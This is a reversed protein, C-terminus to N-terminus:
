CPFNHSSLIRALETVLNSLQQTIADRETNGSQVHSACLQTELGHKKNLKFISVQRYYCVWFHHVFAPNNKNASPFFSLFFFSNPVKAIQIKLAIHSSRRSLSPQIVVDGPTMHYPHLYLRSRYNYKVFIVSFSLVSILTKSATSIIIQLSSYQPLNDISLEKIIQVGYNPTVIWGIGGFHIIM